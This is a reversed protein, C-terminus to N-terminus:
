GALVFAPLPNCSFKKPTPYARRWLLEGPLDLTQRTFFARRTFLQYMEKRIRKADLGAAEAHTPYVRDKRNIRFAKFYNHHFLYCVMRELSADVNRAFCVTERHHEALDKRVERDIYNAAFLPLGLTRPASSPTQDHSVTKGSSEPLGATAYGTIPDCYEKKEDTYVTLHEKGASQRFLDMASRMLHTFSVPIQAAPLPYEQRHAKATAKQTRTMAGKRRLQAYTLDYVFQSDKGVLFNFNNPFYQSVVFSEFGDAVLDEDLSIFSRMRHNFAIIQRALRSIKGAITKPSRGFARGLARLSMGSSLYTLLRRYDLSAKSFYDISFTQSSFRRRCHSCQYRQIRTGDTTSYFGKRIFWNKPRTADTHHPCLPNPCFPPKKM